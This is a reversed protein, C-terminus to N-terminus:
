QMEEDHSDPKEAIQFVGISPTNTPAVIFDPAEDELPVEAENCVQAIKKWLSAEVLTREEHDALAQSVTRSLDTPLSIGFLDRLHVLEYKSLRLVHTKKKKLDQM